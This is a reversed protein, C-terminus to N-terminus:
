SQLGARCSVDLTAMVPTGSQLLSPAMYQGCNNQYVLLDNQRIKNIKTIPLLNVVDYYAM